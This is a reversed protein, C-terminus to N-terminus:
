KHKSYDNKKLNPRFYKGSKYDFQFFHSAYKKFYTEYSIKVLRCGCDPCRKESDPMGHFVTDCMPDICVKIM